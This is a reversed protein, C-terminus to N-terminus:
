KISKLRKIEEELAKIKEIRGASAPLRAIEEEIVDILDIVVDAFSRTGNIYRSVRKNLKNIINDLLKKRGLIYLEDRNLGLEKITYDDVPTILEGNTIAKARARCRRSAEAKIARLHDSHKFSKVEVTAQTTTSKKM